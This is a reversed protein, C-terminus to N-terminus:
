EYEMSGVTQWWGPPQSLKTLVNGNTPVLARLNRFFDSEVMHDHRYGTITAATDLPVDFFYDVGWEGSKSRAEQARQKEMAIDRLDAFASPLNGRVEFHGRGEHRIQWVFHGDQWLSAYSVMAHELVVCTVCRSRAPLRTLRAPNTGVTADMVLAYRAFVACGGSKLAAGALPVYSTGLDHPDPTEGTAVLDLAEYLADENIGEVFIWSMNFGM